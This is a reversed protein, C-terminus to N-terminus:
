SALYSTLLTGLIPLVAPLFGGKQTAVKRKETLSFNKCALSEIQRKYKRLVALDRNSLGNPNTALNFFGVQLVAMQKKNMSKLFFTRQKPTMIELLQCLQKVEEPSTM